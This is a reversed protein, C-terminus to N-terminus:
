EFDGQPVNNQNFEKSLKEKYVYKKQISEFPRYIYYVFNDHVEIKEIYRYTLRIKDGLEGNKTNIHRLYTFGALEYVAYIQGTIKDQILKKKWGTEKAHYHHHISIGTLLEGKSNFCFLKDRYYDFVFLSDNRHFLPAYLQKYYISQTFYNAGVWIVADIGTEREKEKAWLKTRVDVWKYESRYLEMMLSDTIEIIKQYSSDIKDYIFYNFAPYDKNFTSFYMKSKNTDLIPSLYKKFYEKEISSLSIKNKEVSIGVVNDSCIVNSNGRYDRVLEEAIGPIKIRDLVVSNNFLFLESGKVLRKSYVLLIINGNKLVEFDSVSVISDGFVIEPKSSASVTVEKLLPIFDMQIILDLTDKKTYFVQTSVDNFESHTIILNYKENFPLKIRFEGKISSMTNFEKDLIKLSINANQIPLKENKEQVLGSIILSDQSFSAFLFFFLFSFLISFKM